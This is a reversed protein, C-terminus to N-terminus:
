MAKQLEDYLAFAEDRTLLGTASSYDAWKEISQATKEFWMEAEASTPRLISGKEDLTNIINNTVNDDYYSTVDHAWDLEETMIAQYEPPISDWVERNMLVGQLMNQLGAYNSSESMVLHSNCVEYLKFDNVLPWHTLLTNVVGKELSGYYDGIGQVTASSGLSQIYDASTTDVITKRGQMGAPEKVGQDAFHLTSAPLAYVSVWVVGKSENEKDFIDHKALFERYIKSLTVSDPNEASHITNFVATVPQTGANNDATYSTMDAVGQVVGTLLSDYPLLTSSTYLTINVQGNTRVSIHEFADRFYKCKAMFDLGQENCTLDWTKGEYGAPVPAIVPLPSEKAGQANEEGEVVPTGRRDYDALQQDGSSTDSSAGGGAPAPAPAPADGGSNGCAAFMICFVTVLALLVSLKKFKRFMNM